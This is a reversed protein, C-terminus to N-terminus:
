YGTPIERDRPNERGAGGDENLLNHLAKLQPKPEDELTKDLKESWAEPIRAREQVKQVLAQLEDDSMRYRLTHDSGCLKQALTEGCCDYIDVHSLCITKGSKHCRFQTLYTYAKCHQCQYDDEPLDENEVVFRPQADDAM